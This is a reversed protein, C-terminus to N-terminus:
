ELSKMVMLLMEKILKDKEKEPEQHFRWSFFSLLGGITIGKRKLSSM